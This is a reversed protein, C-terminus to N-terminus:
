NWSPPHDTNSQLKLTDVAWEGHELRKGPPPGRNPASDTM